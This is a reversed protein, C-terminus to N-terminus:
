RCVRFSTCVTQKLSDQSLKLDHELNSIRQAAATDVQYLKSTEGFINYDSDGETGEKLMIGAQWRSSIIEVIDYQPPVLQSGDDRIVGSRKGAPTGEALNYVEMM